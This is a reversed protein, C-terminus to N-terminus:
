TRSRRAAHEDLTRQEARAAEVRDTQAIGEAWLEFRRVEKEAEISAARRAAEIQQARRVSERKRRREHAFHALAAQADLADAVTGVLPQDACASWAHEAEDLEGRRRATEAAAAALANQAGDAARRRLEVIRAARRM